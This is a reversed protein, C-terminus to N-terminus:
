KTKKRRIYFLVLVMLVLCLVGYLYIMQQGSAISDGVFVLTYEIEHPTSMATTDAIVAIPEDFATVPLEFVSNEEDALPLYQVGDLKMYDFNRSSWEIRAVAEGNTVVLRAPSTIAARGTGGSLEVEVTYEGDALDLPAALSLAPLMFLLFALLCIKKKM